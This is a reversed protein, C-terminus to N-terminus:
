GANGASVLENLMRDLAGLGISLHGEGEELHVSAGVIRSALAGGHTFPVMLDLSGQWIMVPGTPEDLDVGWDTKV